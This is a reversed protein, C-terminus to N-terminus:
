QRDTARLINKPFIRSTHCPGPCSEKGSGTAGSGTAGSGTTAGLCTAGLLMDVRAGGSEGDRASRELGGHM